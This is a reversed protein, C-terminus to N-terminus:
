EEDSSETDTDTDTDDNSLEDVSKINIKQKIPVNIINDNNDNDNNDNDNNDDNDLIVNSIKCKM